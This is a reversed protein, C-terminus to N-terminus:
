SVLGPPVAPEVEDSDVAGQQVGLLWGLYLARQDGRALEARVPVLAALQGSGEEWEGGPEEELNFSLVVHDGKRRVACCEGDCYLETTDASLLRSPLRLKFIRTGWNTLHLFAHGFAPTLRCVPCGHLSGDHVSRTSLAPTSGAVGPNETWHEVM